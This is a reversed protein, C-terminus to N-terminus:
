RHALRAHHDRDHQRRRKEVFGNAGHSDRAGRNHSGSDGGHRQALSRVLFTIVKTSGPPFCCIGRLLRCAGGGSSPAPRAFPLTGGGVGGASATAVSCISKPRPRRDVAAKAGLPVLGAAM